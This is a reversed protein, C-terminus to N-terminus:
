VRRNIEQICNREISRKQEISNQKRNWLSLNRPYYMFGCDNSSCLFTLWESSSDSSGDWRMEVSSGCFPCPLIEPIKNLISNIRNFTEESSIEILNYKSNSGWMSYFYTGNKNYSRGVQDLFVNPNSEDTSIIRIFEGSSNTYSNGLKIM